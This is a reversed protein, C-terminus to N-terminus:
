RHKTNTIPIFWTYSLCISFLHIFFLGIKSRLEKKSFTKRASLCKLHTTAHIRLSNNEAKYNRQSVANTLTVMSFVNAMNDNVETNFEDSSFSINRFSNTLRQWKSENPQSTQSSPGKLTASLHRITGTSTLRLLKPQLAISTASVENQWAANCFHSM